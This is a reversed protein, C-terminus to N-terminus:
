KANFLFGVQDIGKESLEDTEIIEVVFSAKSLGLDKVVELVEKELERDGLTQRSLHVLDVPYDANANTEAVTSCTLNGRINM